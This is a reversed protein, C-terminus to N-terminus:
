VSVQPMTLAILAIIRLPVTASLVVLTARNTAIKDLSVRSVARAIDLPKRVDVQVAIIAAHIRVILVGSARSVLTANVMRTVYVVSATTPVSRNAVLVMFCRMKALFANVAAM